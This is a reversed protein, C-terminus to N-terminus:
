APNKLPSRRASPDRDIVTSRRDRDRNQFSSAPLSTDARPHREAEPSSEAEPTARNSRHM